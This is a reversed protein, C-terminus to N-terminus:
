VNRWCEAKDGYSCGIHYAGDGELALDLHSFQWDTYTNKPGPCNTNLVVTRQAVDAWGFRNQRWLRSMGGPNCSTWGSTYASKAWRHGHNKGGDNNITDRVADWGRDDWAGSVRWTATWEWNWSCSGSSCCGVIPGWADWWLGTRDVNSQLQQRRICDRRPSLTTNGPVHEEKELTIAGGPYQYVDGPSASEVWKAYTPSDFVADAAVRNLHPAACATAALRAPNARGAPPTGLALM